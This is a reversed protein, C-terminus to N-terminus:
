PWIELRSMLQDYTAKLKAYREVDGLTLTQKMQAQLDRLRKQLNILPTGVLSDLINTYNNQESEQLRIMERTAKLSANLKNMEKVVSDAEKVDNADVLKVKQANLSKIKESMQEAASQM